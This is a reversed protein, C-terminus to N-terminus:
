AAGGDMQEAATPQEGSVLATLAITLKQLHGLEDHRIETFIARADENM